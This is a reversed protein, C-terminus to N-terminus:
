VSSRHTKGEALFHPLDLLLNQSRAHNLRHLNELERDLSEFLPDLLLQLLIRDEFHPLVIGIQRVFLDLM